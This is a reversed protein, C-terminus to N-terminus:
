LSSRFERVQPRSWDTHDNHWGPVNEDFYPSDDVMRHGIVDRTAIDLEDQLWRVLRVGAARQRPRQLINRASSMEVFEIGISRHNIGVAHRCMTTLAVLQYVTGDKDIIFHTCGGPREPKTGSPGPAPTNSAFYNWPSLFTDSVTYHLVIAKPDTLRWTRQGYHRYSYAAMQKKRKPGYPIAKRVIAPRPAPQADVVPVLPLFLGIM